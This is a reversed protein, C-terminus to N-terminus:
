KKKRVDRFFDATAKDAGERRKSKKPYKWSKPVWQLCSTFWGLFILFFEFFRPRIPAALGICSEALLDSLPFCVVKQHKWWFWALWISLHRYYTLLLSLRSKLYSSICLSFFLSHSHLCGLENSILCSSTWMRSSKSQIFWWGHKGLWGSEHFQSSRYIMFDKSHSPLPFRFSFLDLLWLFLSLSPLCSCTTVRMVLVSSCLSSVDTKYIELRWGERKWRRGAGRGDEGM